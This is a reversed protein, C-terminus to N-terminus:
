CCMGEDQPGDKERWSLDKKRSGDIFRKYDGIILIEIGFLHDIVLSM